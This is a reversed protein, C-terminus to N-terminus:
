GIWRSCCICRSPAGSVYEKEESEPQLFYIDRTGRSLVLIPLETSNEQNPLLGHTPRARANYPQLHYGSHWQQSTPLFPALLVNDSSSSLILRENIIYMPLHQGPSSITQSRAQAADAAAIAVCCGSFSTTGLWALSSEKLYIM